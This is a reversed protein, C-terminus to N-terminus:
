RAETFAALVAIRVRDSLILSRGGVGFARRDIEFEADLTITNETETYALTLPITKQHEKITLIFTGQLQGKGTQKLDTSEMSIRPHTEVDFYDERRLHKDRMGFGTNVSTALVEGSLTAGKWNKQPRDLRILVSDFTGKVAVGANRIRFHVTASDATWEQAPLLLGTFLLWMTLLKEM